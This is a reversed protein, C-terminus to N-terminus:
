KVAASFFVMFFCLDLKSPIHLLSVSALVASYKIGSLCRCLVCLPSDYVRISAVRPMSRWIAMGNRVHIKWILDM